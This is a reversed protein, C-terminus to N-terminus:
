GNDKESEEDIRHILGKVKEECIERIAAFVAIGLIANDDGQVAKAIECALVPLLFKINGVTISTVATNGGCEEAAICLMGSPRNALKIVEGVSEAFERVQPVIICEKEMVKKESSGRRRNYAVGQRHCTGPAEVPRRRAVEKTLCEFYLRSLSEFGSGRYFVEAIAAWHLREALLM